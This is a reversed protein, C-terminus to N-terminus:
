IVCNKLHENWGSQSWLVCLNARWGSQIYGCGDGNLLLQLISGAHVKTQERVRVFSLLKRPPFNFVRHPDTGDLSRTAEPTRFKKMLQMDMKGSLTAILISTVSRVCLLVWGIKEGNQEAFVEQLLCSSLPQVKSRRASPLHRMCVM